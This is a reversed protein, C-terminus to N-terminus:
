KYIFIFEGRGLLPFIGQQPEQHYFHRAAETRVVRKVYTLLELQTVVGNHDADAAGTIGDMFAKTFIGGNIDLAADNEDGAAIIWRSPNETLEKIELLTQFRALDTLSPAPDGRTAVGSSCADLVFMVHKGRIQTAYEQEIKSMLIGHEEISARRADWPVLFGSQQGVADLKSFGHGGFYV